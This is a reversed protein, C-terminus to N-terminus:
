RVLGLSLFEDIRKMSLGSQSLFSAIEWEGKSQFPYYLNTEREAAHVDNQFTGMYGTGCGYVHAAGPFITSHPPLDPFVPPADPPTNSGTPLPDGCLFFSNCSSFRHNMHKLVSSENAFTMGCSPCKASFMTSFPHTFWLFNEWLRKGEIRVRRM